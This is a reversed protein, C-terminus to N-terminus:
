DRRAVPISRYKYDKDALNTVSERYPISAITIGAEKGYISTGLLPSRGSASPIYVQSEQEVRRKGGVLWRECILRM